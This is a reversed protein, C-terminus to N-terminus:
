ITENFATATPDERTKNRDSMIAGSMCPHVRPRPQCSAIKTNFRAFYAAVPFWQWVQPDYRAIFIPLDPNFTIM